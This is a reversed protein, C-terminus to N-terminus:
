KPRGANTSSSWDSPLPPTGNIWSKPATASITLRRWSKEQETVIELQYTVKEPTREIATPEVLVIRYIRERTPGEKRRYAAYQEPTLEMFDRETLEVGFRYVVQIGPILGFLAFLMNM